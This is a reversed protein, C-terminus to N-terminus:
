THIISNNNTKYNIGKGFPVITDPIEILGLNIIKAEHGKNLFFESDPIIYEITHKAYNCNELIILDLNQSWYEVLESAKDEGMDKYEILDEILYSTDGRLCADFAEQVSMSDFRSTNMDFIAPTKSIIKVKYINEGWSKQPINSFFLADIRASSGAKSNMNKFNFEIIKDNTSHYAIIEIPQKKNELLFQKLNLLKM